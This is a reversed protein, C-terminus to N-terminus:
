KILIERNGAPHAHVEFGTRDVDPRLCEPSGKFTGPVAKLNLGTRVHLFDASKTINRWGLSSMGKLM